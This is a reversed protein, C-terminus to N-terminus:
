GMSVHVEQHQCQSNHHHLVTYNANPHVHFLADIMVDEEEQEDEPQRGQVEGEEACGEREGEQGARGATKASRSSEGM